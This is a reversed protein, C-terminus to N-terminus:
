ATSPAADPSHAAVDGIIEALRGRVRGCRGTARRCTSGPSTACSPCVPSLRIAPRSPRRTSSRRTGPAFSRAPFMSALMTRSSTPRACRRELSLFPAGGSRGRADDSLGDLNEDAALEEQQLPHEAGRLRSRTRGQRARHRRVGNGRDAGPHPRDGCLRSGRRRQARRARRPLGCGRGGRLDCRRTIPCRSRQATPM